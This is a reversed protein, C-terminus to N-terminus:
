SIGLPDAVQSAFPLLLICALAGSVDGAVLWCIFQLLVICRPFDRSFPQMWRPMTIAAVIAATLSCFHLKGRKDFAAHQAEEDSDILFNFFPQGAYGQWSVLRMLPILERPFHSTLYRVYTDFCTNFSHPLNLCVSCLTLFTM